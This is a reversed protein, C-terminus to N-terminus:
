TDHLYLLLQETALCINHLMADKLSGYVKIISQQDKKSFM